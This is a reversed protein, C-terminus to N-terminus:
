YNGDIDLNHPRPARKGVSLLGPLQVQYIQSPGLVVTACAVLADTQLLAAGDVQRQESEAFHHVGEVRARSDSHWVSVAFQRPQQLVRQAARRMRDHDGVNCRLVFIVKVSESSEVEGGLGLKNHVLGKCSLGNGHGHQRTLSIFSRELSWPPPQNLFITHKNNLYRNIRVLMDIVYRLTFYRVGM